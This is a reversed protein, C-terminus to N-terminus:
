QFGDAIQKKRTYLKKIQEKKKAKVVPDLDFTGRTAEDLSHLLEKVKNWDQEDPSKDLEEDIQSDLYSIWEKNKTEKNKVM